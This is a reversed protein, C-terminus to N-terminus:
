LTTQLGLGIREVNKSNAVGGGGKYFRPDAGSVAFNVTFYLPIQSYDLLLFLLNDCLSPRVNLRELIGVDSLFDVFDNDNNM